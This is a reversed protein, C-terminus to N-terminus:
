QEVGVLGMNVHDQLRHGRAPLVVENDPLRHEVLPALLKGAMDACLTNRRFGGTPSIGPLSSRGLKLAYVSRDCTSLLAEM